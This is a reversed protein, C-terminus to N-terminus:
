LFEETIVGHGQRAREILSQKLAEMTARQSYDPQPERKATVWGRSVCLAFQTEMATSFAEVASSLARIFPEDREVRYLAPPLGPNYALLYNFERECIWLQAQAQIKHEEYAKGSQLM